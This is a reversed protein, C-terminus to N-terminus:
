NGEHRLVEEDFVFSDDILHYFVHQQVGKFLVPIPLADFKGLLPKNRNNKKQKLYNAFVTLTRNHPYITFFIAKKQLARANALHRDMFGGAHWTFDPLSTRHTNLTYRHMLIRSCNAYNQTGSISVLQDNWLLGEIASFETQRWKANSFKYIEEASDSFNFERMLQTHTQESTADVAGHEICVRDRFATLEGHWKDSYTVFRIM